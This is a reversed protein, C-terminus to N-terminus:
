KKGRKSKKKPPQPRPMLTVADHFSIQHKQLAEELSMNTRLDDQLAELKYRKVMLMVM